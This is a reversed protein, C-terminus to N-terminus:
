VARIAENRRQQCRGRPRGLALACLSSAALILTSPEPVAQTAIPDTMQLVGTLTNFPTAPGNTFAFESVIGTPNPIVSQWGIFDLLAADPGAPVRFGAGVGVQNAPSPPALFLSTSTATLSPQNYIVIYGSNSPNITFDGTPTTLKIDWDLIDTSLLFGTAGDTTITGTVSGGTPNTIYDILTYTSGAHVAPPVFAFGVLFLILLGPRSFRSGPRPRSRRSVNKLAVGPPM